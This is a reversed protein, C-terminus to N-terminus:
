LGFLDYFIAAPTGVISRQKSCPMDARSIRIRHNDYRKSLTTSGPPSAHLHAGPRQSSQNVSKIIYAPM